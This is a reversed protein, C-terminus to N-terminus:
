GFWAAAVAAVFLYRGLKGITVLLLFPAFRVRLAGAVATLPDGVLPAWAFLLSWLGFRGYWGVAQEYRRPSVPFWRRDRYHSLFRGLAWNVASGAVNGVTAVAVLLVPDGKGGAILGALLAESTGPLLTAATFASLFLGAYAALDNM